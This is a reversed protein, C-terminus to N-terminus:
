REESRGSPFITTSKMVSGGDNIIFHFDKTGYNEVLPMFRMVYSKIDKFKLLTKGSEITEYKDDPVTLILINTGDTAKFTLVDNLEIMIMSTFNDENSRVINSLKSLVSQLEDVSIKFEM